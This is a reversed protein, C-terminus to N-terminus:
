WKSEISNFCLIVKFDEEIIKTRAYGKIQKRVVDIGRDDSANIEIFYKKWDKGYLEKVLAISCSTKGTGAPGAFLMHPIDNNKIFEKLLNTVKEQGVVELLNQPRYKEAFITKM